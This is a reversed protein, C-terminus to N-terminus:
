DSELPKRKIEAQITRLVQVAYRLKEYSQKPKSGLLALSDQLFTKALRAQDRITMKKVNIERLEPDFDTLGHSLSLVAAAYESEEAAHWLAERLNSSKQLDQEAQIKDLISIAISIANQIKLIYQAHM